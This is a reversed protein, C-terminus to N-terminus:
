FHAAIRRMTFKARLWQATAGIWQMPPKQGM